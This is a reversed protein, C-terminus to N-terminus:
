DPLRAAAKHFGTWRRLKEGDITSGSPERLTGNDSLGHNLPYVAPHVGARDYARLMQECLVDCMWASTHTFFVAPSRLLQGLGNIGIWGSSSFDWAEQLRQIDIWLQSEATL